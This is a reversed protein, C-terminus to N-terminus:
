AKFGMGIVFIEKSSKFGRSIIAGLHRISNASQHFRDPNSSDKIVKIAGIYAIGSKKDSKTLEKYIKQQNLTLDEEKKTM